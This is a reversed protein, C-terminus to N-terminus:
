NTYRLGHIMIIEKLFYNYPNYYDNVNLQYNNSRTNKHLYMIKNFVSKKTTILM